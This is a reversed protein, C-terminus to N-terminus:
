TVISSTMTVAELRSCLAPVSLVRAARGELETIRDIIVAPYRAEELLQAQRTPGFLEVPQDARVVGPVLHRVRTQGVSLSGRPDAPIWPM